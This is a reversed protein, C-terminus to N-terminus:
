ELLKILSTTSPMDGDFDVNGTEKMKKLVLRLGEFKESFITNLDSYKMKGGHDRLIKVVTYQADGKPGGHPTVAMVRAKEAIKEREEPNKIFRIKGSISPVVGEYDVFGQEKLKKLIIRCGEFH